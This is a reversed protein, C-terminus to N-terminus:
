QMQMSLSTLAFAIIVVNKLPMLQCKGDENDRQPVPVKQMVVDLM